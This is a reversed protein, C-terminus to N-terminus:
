RAAIEPSGKKVVYESRKMVSRSTHSASSCQGGVLHSVAVKEASSPGSLAIAIMPRPHEHDSNGADDIRYGDALWAVLRTSIDLLGRTEDSRDGILLRARPIKRPTTAPNAVANTKRRTSSEAVRAAAACADWYAGLVRPGIRTELWTRSPGPTRPDPCPVYRRHRSSTPEM